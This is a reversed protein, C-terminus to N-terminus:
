DDPSTRGAPSIIAALEQRGVVGLKRYAHALHSDITRVSVALQLAIAKSSHGESALRAVTVERKTLRAPGNVKDALTPTVAGECKAVLGAARAALRRDRQRPNLQQVEVIAEAALLLMGLDEFAEAADLLGTRDGATLAVVHAVAIPPFPGDSRSAVEQLPPLAQEAVGLRAADHYAIVAVPLQGRDHATDAAKLCLGAGALRDRISCTWARGLELCFELWRSGPRDSAEARRLAEAAGSTDGTLALGQALGGLCAPWIGLLDGQRLHPEAERFFRVATALRGRLLAVWGLSAAGAGHAEHSRLGLATEYQLRAIAEAESLNGCGLHGLFMTGVAWNMSGGVEDAVRLVPDLGREAIRVAEDSQGSLALGSGLASLAALLPRPSLNTQEVLPASIAVAEAPYGGFSLVNARVAMLWAYCDPDTTRPIAGDLLGEADQARGLAGSLILVRLVQIETFQREDRPRIGDLDVLADDGRGQRYHVGALFIRARRHGGAELSALALREALQLDMAELARRAAQLLTAAPVEEAIELRWNVYRLLEEGQDAGMDAFAEALDHIISRRRGAPMTRLLAEAYLPHALRIMPPVTESEWTLLGRREGDETDAPPAVRGLIDLDVPEGVAVVELARRARGPVAALHAEILDILRGGAVLPSKTRWVGGVQVLQGRGRAAEVLERLYLLNGASVKWAQQALLGDVPGGLVAELLKAVKARSLRQLYIREGFGEKWLATVAEPGVEDDRITLVLAIGETAASAM